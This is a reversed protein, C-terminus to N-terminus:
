RSTAVTQRHVSDQRSSRGLSGPTRLSSSSPLRPCSARSNRHQPGNRGPMGSFDNVFSQEYSRCVIPDTYIIFAVENKFDFFNRPIHPRATKAPSLAQSIENELGPNKERSFSFPVRALSAHPTIPLAHTNILDGSLRALGGVEEIKGPETDLGHHM